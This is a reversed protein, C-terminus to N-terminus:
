RARKKQPISFKIDDLTLKDNTKYDLLIIKSLNREIFFKYQYDYLNDINLYFKLTKDIEDSLSIYPIMRNDDNYLTIKSVKIPYEIKLSKYENDNFEIKKINGKGIIEINEFSCYSITLYNIIESNVILNNITLYELCLKKLNPFNKFDCILTKIKTLILTELKNFIENAIKVTKFYALDTYYLSKLNEGLYFYSRYQNDILSYRMSDIHTIKECNSISVYIENTVPTNFNKLKPLNDIIIVKKDAKDILEIYAIEDNDKLIIKEEYRSIYVSM